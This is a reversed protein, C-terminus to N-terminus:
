INPTAGYAGARYKGYYNEDRRIGRIDDLRWAESCGDSNKEVLLMQEKLLTDMVDPIYSTFIIQANHPNSETDTFLGLLAMVM